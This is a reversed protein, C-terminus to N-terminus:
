PRASRRLPDRSPAPLAPHRPARLRGRCQGDPLHSLGARRHGRPGHRGHVARRRRLQVVEGAYHRTHDNLWGWRAPGNPACPTECCEPTRPRPTFRAASGRLPSRRPRGIPRPRARKPSCSVATRKPRLSRAADPVRGTAGRRRSSEAPVAVPGAIPTPIARVPKLPLTSKGLDVAVPDPVRLRTLTVAPPPPSELPDVRSQNRETETSEETNGSAPIPAPVGFM